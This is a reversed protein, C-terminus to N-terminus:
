RSWVQEKGVAFYLFAVMAATNLLLFALALDTLRSAVGLPVRAWALTGLTAVCVAAALPLRYLFGSLFVSAVVAGVLAFPVALRCLKHSVFEFRLPNKATLLWPCLRLLQYNGFLTRVKRKFEQEPRAPLNDLAVARPEFVVRSGSRAVTMPIFLDDLILGAPLRPILSRRVAYIAGTAGVVSGSASEWQRISKEMKWYSGVGRQTSATGDGLLLEGSVAGVSTDSFNEVLLRVSDIAVRQRVDMFVVVEGTSVEVARNLAEAKGMHESLLIPRLSSNVSERLIDNTRDTSGDSAVIIQLLDVPYDLSQLNQLKEGLDKEGNRVAMIISVKPFFPQPNVPKPKWKTRLLLWAPYLLYAYVVIFLSCWFLLKM